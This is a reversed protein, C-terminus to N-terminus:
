VCVLTPLKEAHQWLQILREFIQQSVQGIEEVIVLDYEFMLDLTQNIHKWIAFAGHVTDVHLHPYKQRFKAALKGTPAAILIKGDLKDIQEIAEEIASTKGSGAPGLVAIVQRLSKDTSLHAFPDFNADEGEDGNADEGKWRNEEIRRQQLGEKFSDVIERVINMQDWELTPKNGLPPPVIEDKDLEDSIYLKSLEYNAELMALINRVHHDRFAELQLEQRVPEEKTWHDPCNLFALTQYYIHDPVKEVEPKYFDDWHRFPKNM